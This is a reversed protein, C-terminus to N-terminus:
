SDGGKRRWRDAAQASRPLARRSGQPVVSPTSDMRATVTKWVGDGCHSKKVSAAVTMGGTILVLNKIVFEGMVSLHLPGVGGVFALDPHTILLSFTGCLLGFFLALTLRIASGTLLGLGIGIELGGTTLVAIRSPLFSLSEAVLEAVPSLGLVKLLGFWLFISGLAVRQSFLGYRRCLGILGHDYLLFRDTM